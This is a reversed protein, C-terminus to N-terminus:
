GVGARRRMRLHKLNWLGAARVAETQPDNSDRFRRPMAESTNMRKVRLLM